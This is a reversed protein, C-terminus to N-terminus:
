VEGRCFWLQLRRQLDPFTHPSAHEAESSGDGSMKGTACVGRSPARPGRTRPISIAEVKVLNEWCLCHRLLLLSSACESSMLALLVMAAVRPLPPVIDVHGWHWHFSAARKPRYSPSFDLGGWLDVLGDKYIIGFTSRVCQKPSWSGLAPYAMSM